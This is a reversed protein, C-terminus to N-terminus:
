SSNLQPSDIQWGCPSKWYTIPHMFKLNLLKLNLFKLNLLVPISLNLLCWKIFPKYVLIQIFDCLSFLSLDSHQINPCQVTSVNHSFASDAMIPWPLLPLHPDLSRPIFSAPHALWHQHASYSSSNVMSKLLISLTSSRQKGLLSM